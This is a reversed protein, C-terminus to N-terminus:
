PESGRSDALGDRLLQRDARSLNTSCRLLRFHLEDGIRTVPTLYIGTRHATGPKTSETLSQFAHEACIRNFHDSGSDFFRRYYVGVGHVRIPVQGLDVFQWPQRHAQEDYGYSLSRIVLVRTAAALEHGNIRSIDGCLYVTKQKLDPSGSLFDDLSIVFGFFNRILDDDQSLASSVVLFNSADEIRAVKRGATHM